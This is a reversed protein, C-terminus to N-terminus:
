PLRVVLLSVDDAHQRLAVLHDAVQQVDGGGAVASGTEEMLLAIGADLDETRTEVLGDSYLLLTSGPAVVETHEAREVPGCGLPPSLGDDIRRASGDPQMLLAPVHGARALTLTRDAPQWLAAVVTAFGREDLELAVADVRDLVTAPSPDVRSLARISQRLVGMTTAAHIGKGVVDGVTLLVRGDVLTQVDYWDGGVELGSEGPVYCAAIELGPAQPVHPPLLSRQLVEARTREAAHQGARDLAPGGQAVLAAIVARDAESWPQLKDDSVVVAGDLVGASELRVAALRAVDDQAPVTGVGPFRRLITDHGTLFVATGGSWLHGVPSGPDQNLALVSAVSRDDYGRQAIVRTGPPTNTFQVVMVRHCGTLATISTAMTEGVEVPGTARSLAMANAMLTDSVAGTVALQAERRSLESETYGEMRQASRTLSVVSGIALVAYTAVRMSLSAWWVADFRAGSVANLAVDAVSLALAVGFFGVLPATTRGSSASWAVFAAAGFVALVVEIVTLTPTFVVQDSILTPQPLLDAAVVVALLVGLWTSRRAWRADVGAAGAVAGGFLALHFLLYLAASSQTGTRLLGGGSTVIPFSIYQLALAVVSVTLGASAWRVRADAGPHGASRYVVLAVAGLVPAATFMATAVSEGPLRGVNLAWLYAAGSAAAAGLAVAVDFRVEPRPRRSDIAFVGAQPASM